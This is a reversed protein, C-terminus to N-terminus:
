QRNSEAQADFGLVTYTRTLYFDMASCYVVLVVVVGLLAVGEGSTVSIEDSPKSNWMRREAAQTEPVIRRISSVFLVSGKGSGGKKKNPKKRERDHQL